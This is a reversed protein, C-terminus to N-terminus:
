DRMYSGRMMLRRVSAVGEGDLRLLPSPADEILIPAMTPLPTPSPTKPKSGGGNKNEMIVVVLIVIGCIVLLACCCYAQTRRINIMHKIAGMM